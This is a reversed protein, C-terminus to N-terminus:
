DQDTDHLYDESNQALYAEFPSYDPHTIRCVMIDCEM